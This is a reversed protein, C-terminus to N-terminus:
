WRRALGRGVLFTIAAAFTSGLSVAVLAVGFPLLAAAALTLISGPFLLLSAPTYTLGVLVAAWVVDVGGLWDRFATFTGKGFVAALVILAILVLLAVIRM